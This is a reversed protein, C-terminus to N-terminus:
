LTRTSSKSSAMGHGVWNVVAACGSARVMHVFNGTTQRNPFQRANRCRRGRCHHNTGGQQERRTRLRRQAYEANGGKLEKRAQPATRESLPTPPGHRM